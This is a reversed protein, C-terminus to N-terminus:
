SLSLAYDVLKMFFGLMVMFSVLVSITVVANRWGYMIFMFVFIAVIGIGAAILAGNLANSGLSPNIKEEQM